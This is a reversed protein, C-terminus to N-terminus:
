PAPELVCTEQGLAVQEQSDPLRICAQDGPYWRLPCWGAMRAITEMLENTTAMSRVAQWRAKLDVSAQDRFVQQAVKLRIPLCSFIFRGGPRIIRRADLLYRFADEHEIHTFVSFGCIFDVTADPLSFETVTQKVWRVSCPPNAITRRILADGNRLMTESIDIGIYEGGQLLPIVKVALRGNGCGFDVLTHSPQLGEMLLIGLEIRGFKDYDDPTLSGIAQETPVTQALHEYSKEYDFANAGNSGSRQFIRRLRSRFRM